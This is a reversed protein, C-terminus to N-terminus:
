FECLRTAEVYLQSAAQPVPPYEACFRDLQGHLQEHLLLSTLPLAKIALELRGHALLEAHLGVRDWRLGRLSSLERETLEYAAPDPVEGATFARLFAKDTL